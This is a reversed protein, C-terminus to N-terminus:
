NTLLERSERNNEWPEIIEIGETAPLEWEANCNECRDREVRRRRGCRACEVLHVQPYIALVALASGIGCVFGILSWIIQQRTSLGRVRAMAYTAIIAFIAMVAIMPAASWLPEVIYESRLILNANLVYACVMELLVFVCIGVSTVSGITLSNIYSTQKAPMECTYSIPKEDLSRKRTVRYKNLSMEDVWTWTTPGTENPPGPFWVFSILAELRNELDFTQDLVLKVGSPNSDSGELHYITVTRGVVILLKPRTGSSDTESWQRGADIPQNLLTDCNDDKAALAYVGQADVILALEIHVQTVSPDKFRKKGQASSGDISKKEIVRFGVAGKQNGRYEYALIRGDNDLFWVGDKTQYLERFDWSRERQGTIKEVHISGPSWQEPVEQAALQSAYEVLPWRETRQDGHIGVVSHLNVLWPDGNEDIVVERWSNETSGVFLSPTALAASAAVLSSLLLVIKTTASAACNEGSEFAIRSAFALVLLLTMGVGLIVLEFISIPGTVIFYTLTTIASAFLPLLRTGLWRAPRNIVLSVGFYFSFCFFSFVMAPITQYWTTPLREPGMWELYFATYALPVFVAFAYFLTGVAVKAHFIQRASQKRHLLFARASTPQAFAFQACALAVAVIFAAAGAAAVLSGSLRDVGYIGNAGPVTVWLFVVVLLLCFPFWRVTERFEKWFLASM